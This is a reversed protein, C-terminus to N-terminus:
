EQNNTFRITFSRSPFSENNHLTLISKKEIERAILVNRILISVVHRKSRQWCDLLNLSHSPSDHSFLIISIKDYNHFTIIMKNKIVLCFCTVNKSFCFISTIDSAFYRKRPIKIHNSLARQTRCSYLYWFFNQHQKCNLVWLFDSLSIFIECIKCLLPYASSEIVEASRSNQRNLFSSFTIKLKLIHCQM